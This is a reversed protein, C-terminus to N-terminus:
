IYTTKFVFTIVNTMKLTKSTLCKQRNEDRKTRVGIISTSAGTQGNRSLWSKSNEKFYLYYKNASDSAFNLFISYPVKKFLKM